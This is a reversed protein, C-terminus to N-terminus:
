LPIIHINLTSITPAKIPPFGSITDPNLDATLVDYVWYASYIGPYYGRAELTECWGLCIANKTAKTTSSGTQAETEMDLYIPYEFYMDYQEIYDMVWRADAAAADYSLAYSYFYLGLPIGAARARKYYEHFALDVTISSTTSTEYGIRLIIFECGSAKLKNFDVRDYDLNTGGVNWYSLDIGFVFEPDTASPAGAGAIASASICYLPVVSLTMVLVLTLALFRKTRRM